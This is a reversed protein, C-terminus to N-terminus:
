VMSRLLNGQRVLAENHIMFKALKALLHDFLIVRQENAIKRLFNWLHDVRREKLNKLEHRLWRHVVSVQRRTCGKVVQDGERVLITNVVRLFRVLDMDGGVSASFFAVDFHVCQSLIPLISAIEINEQSVLHGQQRRRSCPLVVGDPVTELELELESELEVIVLGEELANKVPGSPVEYVLHNGNNLVAMNKAAHEVIIAIDNREFFLNGDKLVADILNLLSEREKPHAQNNASQFAKSPVM